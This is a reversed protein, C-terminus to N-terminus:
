NAQRKKSIVIGAISIFRCKEKEWLAGIEEPIEWSVIILQANLRKDLQSYTNERVNNINYFEKGEHYYGHIISVGLFVNDADSWQPSIRKISTIQTSLEKIGDSIHKQFNEYSNENLSYWGKKVEIYYNISVGSKGDRNLCWYDVRRSKEIETHESSNFSWESLHIPTIKDIAVALTSYLNREKHLIPIDDYGTIEKHKKWYRYSQEFVNRSFQEFFKGAVRGNEIADSKYYKKDISINL